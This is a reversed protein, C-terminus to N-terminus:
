HDSGYVECDLEGRDLTVKVKDGPQVAGADRIIATRAENWCVAYGRGLVALPSLSHLRAATNGLRVDAAHQRRGLAGQLRGDAAVLRTSITAFRRRVDYSELMLRLGQVSRDHRALRARLTRALGHTLEATHRGRHGVRAAFGGFAPKADIARLRADLRHLRAIAATEVLQALRDIRSCFDDKRSVVIEAAASPTPARMDAVFDAITVDTEHGV